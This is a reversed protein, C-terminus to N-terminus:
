LCANSGNDSMHTTNNARVYQSLHQLAGGWLAQVLGQQGGSGDADRSVSVLAEAAGERANSSLADM